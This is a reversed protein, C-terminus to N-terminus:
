SGLDALENMLSGDVRAQLGVRNARQERLGLGLRRDDVRHAPGRLLHQRPPLVPCTEEGRPADVASATEPCQVALQQFADLALPPHRRLEQDRYQADLRGVPLVRPAVADQIRERGQTKVVRRACGVEPLFEFLEQQHDLVLVDVGQGHAARIGSRHAGRLEHRRAIPAKRDVVVVLAAAVEPIVPAINEGTDRVVKVFLAPM